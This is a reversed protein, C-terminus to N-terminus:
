LISLFWAPFPPFAHERVNFLILSDLIEDDRAAVAILEGCVLELQYAFPQEVDWVDSPKAECGFTQRNSWTTNQVLGVRPYPTLFLM